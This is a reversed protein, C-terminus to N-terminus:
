KTPQVIRGVKAAGAEEEEEEKKRKAVAEGNRQKVVRNTEDISARINENITHDIEDENPNAMIAFTAFVHAVGIKRM